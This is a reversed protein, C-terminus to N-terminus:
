LRDEARIAAAAAEWAEEALRTLGQMDEPLDLDKHASSPVRGRLARLDALLEEARIPDDLAGLFAARLPALLDSADHRPPRTRVEVKEVWLEGGADSAVSRCEAALRDAGAVLAAHLTTEGRLTLRTLLPRGEAAEVARRVAADVRDTLIAIDLGSADLELTAWRLTDVTRHEVTVVRRDEV